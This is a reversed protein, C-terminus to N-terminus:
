LLLIKTCQPSLVNCLLYLLSEFSYEVIRCDLHGILDRYKPFFHVCERFSKVDSVM